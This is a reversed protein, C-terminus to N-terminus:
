LDHAGVIKDFTTPAAARAVPAPGLFQSRWTRKPTKRLLRFMAELENLDTLAVGRRELGIAADDRETTTL